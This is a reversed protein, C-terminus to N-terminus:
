ATSCTSYRRWSNSAAAGGLKVIKTLRADVDLYNYRQSLQDLTVTFLGRGQRFANIIDLNSQSAIGGQNLALGAPRDGITTGDGDLDIAPASRM